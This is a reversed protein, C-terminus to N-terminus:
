AQTPRPSTGPRLGMGRRLALRRLPAINRLAGLGLTRVLKAPALDTSFLRALGDTLALTFGADAQRERDYRVLQEGEGPQQGSNAGEALIAVLAAVDRVGVNFGQAHIPHIGHAADGVLAVRPAAFRRARHASLPYATPTGAITLEGLLGGIEDQLARALREHSADALHAAREPRDVWTISTLRPGIPLLALPGGPRLFERVREGGPRGHRVAFTLATQTYARRESAISALTRIASNRGDAGVLLQGQLTRGDDLRVEIGHATRRLGAVTAPGVLDINPEERAAELLGARLRLNEVGYAFPHEGIEAAHYSIQQGTACDVLDVGWVPTTFPAVARWAGLAEMALRSGYMLALARGDFAEPTPLVFDTADVVVSKLGIRALGNALLLGAHGGGAIIIRGSGEITM